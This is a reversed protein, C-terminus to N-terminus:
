QVVNQGLNFIACCDICLLYAIKTATVVFRQMFSPRFVKELLLHYPKVIKFCFNFFITKRPRLQSADDAACSVTANFDTICPSSITCPTCITQQDM